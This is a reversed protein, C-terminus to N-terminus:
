SHKWICTLWAQNSFEPESMDIHICKLNIYKSDSLKLSNKEANLRDAVLWCRTLESIDKLYSIAGSDNNLRQTTATIAKCDKNLYGFQAIVRSSEPDGFQPEKLKQQEIDYEVGRFDIGGLKIFEEIYTNHVTTKLNKYEENKKKAINNFQSINNIIKSLQEKLSQM